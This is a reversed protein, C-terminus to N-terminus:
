VWLSSLGLLTSSAFVSAVVPPDAPLTAADYYAFADALAATEGDSRMVMTESSQYWPSLSFSRAVTSAAAAAAVAAFRSHSLVWSATSPLSSAAPTAM